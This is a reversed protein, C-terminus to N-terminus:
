IWARVGFAIIGIGVATLVNFDLVLGMTLAVGVIDISFPAISAVVSTTLFDRPASDPLFLVSLKSMLGGLVFGIVLTWVLQKTHRARAGVLSDTVTRESLPHILTTVGSYACRTPWALRLPLCPWMLRRRLGVGRAQERM